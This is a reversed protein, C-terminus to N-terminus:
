GNMEGGGFDRDYREMLMQEKERMLGAGIEEGHDFGLIHLMGHITLLFLERELSHGAQEAQESARDVSIYIDGVAFEGITHSDMNQPELYSFSLVDTTKDKNRYERNIRLLMDDGAIVVGVEGETLNQEDLLSNIVETLQGFFIDSFVPESKLYKIIVSM